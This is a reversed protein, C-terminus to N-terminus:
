ENVRVMEIESTSKFYFVTVEKKYIYLPCGKSVQIDYRSHTEFKTDPYEKPIKKNLAEFVEQYLPIIVKAASDNNAIFDISVKAIDLQTNITRLETIMTGTIKPQHFINVTSAAHYDKQNRFTPTLFIQNFLLIPELLLQLGDPNQLKRQLLNLIGIDKQSLDSTILISDLMSIAKKQNEKYAEVNILWGSNSLKYTLDIGDRLKDM